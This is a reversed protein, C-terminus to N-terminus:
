VINNTISVLAHVYDGGGGDTYIWFARTAGPAIDFTLHSDVPSGHWGFALVQQDVVHITGTSDKETVWIYDTGYTDDARESLLVIAHGFETNYAGKNADVYSDDASKVTKKYFINNQHVEFQATATVHHSKAFAPPTADAPGAAGAAIGVSIGAVALGAAARKINTILSM